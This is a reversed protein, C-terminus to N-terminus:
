YFPPSMLTPHYTSPAPTTGAEILNGLGLLGPSATDLAYHSMTSVLLGPSHGITLRRPTQSAIGLSMSFYSPMFSPAHGSLVPPLTLVLSHACSSLYSLALM